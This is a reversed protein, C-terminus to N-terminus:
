AATGTTIAPLPNFATKQEAKKLAVNDRIYIPQAHEPLDAEGAAFCPRALALEARATPVRDAAVRQLGPYRLALAAGHVGFGTGCGAWEGPLYGAIDPVNEPKCVTPPSVEEWGDVGKILGRRYAAHYVEGMRADSCAIVQRCGDSRYLDEALAMLTVIGKVRVELAYALGQTVGCAIRLGTFSGPGCGFAIGQVDAKQLGARAILKMIEGLIREAYLQGAHEHYDHLTDGAQLALSLYESSAEIALLNM